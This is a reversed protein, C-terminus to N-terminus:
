LDIVTLYFPIPTLQRLGDEIIKNLIYIHPMCWKLWSKWYIKVVVVSQTESTGRPYARIKFDKIFSVASLSGEFCAMSGRIHMNDEVSLEIM